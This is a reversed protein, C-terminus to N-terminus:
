LPTSLACSIVVLMSFLSVDCDFSSCTVCMSAPSHYMVNLSQSVSGRYSDTLMDFTVLATSSCRYGRYQIQLCATSQDRSVHRRSVCCMRRAFIGLLKDHRSECCCDSCNRRLLRLSWEGDDVVGEMVVRAEMREPEEPNKLWSIETLAFKMGVSQAFGIGTKNVMIDKFQLVISVKLELSVNGAIRSADESANDKKKSM